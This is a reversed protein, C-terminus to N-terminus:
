LFGYTNTNESISEGEGIVRGGGRVFFQLTPRWDYPHVPNGKVESADGSVLRNFGRIPNFLFAAAEQGFRQAEDGVSRANTLLELATAKAGNPTVEAYVWVKSM